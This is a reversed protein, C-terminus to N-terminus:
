TIFRKKRRLSNSFEDTILGFLYYLRPFSTSVKNKEILPGAVIKASYFSTTDPYLAM